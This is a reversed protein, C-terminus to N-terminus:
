PFNTFISPLDGAVHLQYNTPRRAERLTALIEKLLLSLQCIKVSPRGSVRFTSPLHCFTVWICLLNVSTSPLEGQWVSHERITEQGCPFNVSTSPLDGPQVFLSRLNVSHRATTHFTSPLDKQRMSLQCINISHRGAAYFNISAAHLDPCDRREMSVM